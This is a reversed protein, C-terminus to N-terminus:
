GKMKGTLETNVRIYHGVNESAQLQKTINSTASSTVLLFTGENRLIIKFIRSGYPCFLNCMTASACFYNEGKGFGKKIIDTKIINNLFVM